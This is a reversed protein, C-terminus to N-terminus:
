MLERGPAHQVVGVREDGRQLRAVEAAGAEVVELALVEGVSWGSHAIFLTTSVGCM